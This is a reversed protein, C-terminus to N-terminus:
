RSFAARAIDAAEETTRYGAIKDLYVPDAHDPDVAYAGFDATLFTIPRFRIVDPLRELELPSLQHHQKYGQVIAQIRTADPRASGAPHVWSILYGLDLIGPSRGTGDWDIVTLANDAQRLVNEPHFDNHILVYPLDHCRDVAAIGDILENRWPEFAAPYTEVALLDDLSMNMESDLSREAVPIGQEVLMEPTFLSHLRGLLDGLRFLTAPETDNAKGVIFNTMVLRWGDREVMRAGDKTPITREAPYDAEALLGFVKVLTEPDSRTNEPPYVRLIYQTEGQRVIYVPRDSESGGSTQHLIAGTFGYNEALLDRLFTDHAIL